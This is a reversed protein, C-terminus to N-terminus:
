YLNYKTGLPMKADEELEAALQRLGARRIANVIKSFDCEFKRLLFQTVFDNVVDQVVKRQGCREVGEKELPTVVKDALLHRLMTSLGEKSLQARLAPLHKRLANGKHSDSLYTFNRHSDDAM